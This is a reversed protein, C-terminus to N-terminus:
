VVRGCGSGKYIYKMTTTNFRKFYKTLVGISMTIRYFSWTIIEYLLKYVFAKKELENMPSLTKRLLLMTVLM